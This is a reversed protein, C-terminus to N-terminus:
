VGPRGRVGVSPDQTKSNRQHKTIPIQHKYGNSAYRTQDLYDTGHDGEFIRETRLEDVPDACYEGLTAEKGLRPIEFVSRLLLFHCYRDSLRELFLSM